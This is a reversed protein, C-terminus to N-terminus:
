IDDYPDDSLGTEAVPALAKPKEKSAGTGDCRSKEVVVRGANKGKRELECKTWGTAEKLLALAPELVDVFKGLQMKPRGMLDRVTELNMPYPKLHTSYFAYLGKALPNGALCDLESRRLLTWQGGGFLKALEVDLLVDYDCDGKTERDFRLMKLILRSKGVFVGPVSFEFEARFLRDLSEDLLARTKGGLARGLTKIFDGRNFCVRAERHMEHANEFVRRLLEYFVEADGQDLGQGATQFVSIESTATAGLKTKSSYIPRQAKPGYKQTSFVAIRAFAHATVFNKGLGYPLPLKPWAAATNPTATM